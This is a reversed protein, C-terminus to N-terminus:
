EADEMEDAWLCLWSYIEAGLDADFEPHEDPSFNGSVTSVEGSEPKYIHVTVDGRELTVTLDLSKVLPGAPEKIECSNGENKLEGYYPSFPCQCNGLKIPPRDYIASISKVGGNPKFYDCNKCLKFKM